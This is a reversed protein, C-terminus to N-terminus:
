VTMNLVEAKFEDITSSSKGSIVDHDFVICCRFGKGAM